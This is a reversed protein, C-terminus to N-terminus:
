GNRVGDVIRKVTSIGSRRGGGRPFPLGSLAWVAWDRQWPMLDIGLDKAFADVRDGATPEPPDTCACDAVEDPDKSIRIIGFGKCHTCDEDPRARRTLETM